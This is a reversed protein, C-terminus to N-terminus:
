FRSVFRIIKICKWHCRVAKKQASVRRPTDMHTISLLYMKLQALVISKQINWHLIQAWVAQLPEIVLTVEIGVHSNVCPLFRVRTVHTVFSKGLAAVHLWVHNNMQLFCFHMWLWRNLYFFQAYMKRSYKQCFPININQFM